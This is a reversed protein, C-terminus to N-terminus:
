EQLEFAHNLDVWYTSVTFNQEHGNRKWVVAVTVERISKSLFNSFIKAIMETIQANPDDQGGGGSGVNPFKLEKITRKWGFDAYPPEFQGTKEKDLEDFEKGEIDSETEIMKNKALMSVINMKKAKDAAGISSGEITFIAALATVMIAMAILVELLTFGRRNLLPAKNKEM